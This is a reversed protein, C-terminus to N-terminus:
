NEYIEHLEVEYIMPTFANVTGSSTENALMQYPFHFRYISGTNMLQIGEILGPFMPNGVVTIIPDRKGYTQDYVSGDLLYSRYDIRIRKGYQANPGKGERLVEYCFGSPHQHVNPNEALLRNFYATQLSDASKRQQKLMQQQKQYSMTVIFQMGDRFATDDLPQEGGELTRHIAEEMLEEDLEFFLSKELTQGISMGMVWSLTDDMNELRPTANHKNGCGTMALAAALIILTAKKM